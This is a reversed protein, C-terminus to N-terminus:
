RRISDVDEEDNNSSKNKTFTEEIIKEFSNELGFSPENEDLKKKFNPNSKM